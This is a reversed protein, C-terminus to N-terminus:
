DCQLALDPEPQPAAAAHPALQNAFAHFPMPKGFLWGQAYQVGRSRLFMAQEETEVGEAIMKIGLARGLGIIHAVVHSAPADTTITDVFVKDIKLYDVKFSQLYSLCSYGTGFDDIALQFGNARLAAIVSHALDGQMFGRETAEIVINGPGAGTARKLDLLLDVTGMSHLDEASLNLAIHCHPYRAFLDAADDQALSLVRRTILTILGNEEAVPIFHDPRMIEGKPRSWRILAEAGTWHGTQLDVIPQYELFFERRKLALRMIAPLAAQRRLLLLAAWALVIGSCAGLPLLFMAARRFGADVEAIPLAVYVALDCRTSRRM